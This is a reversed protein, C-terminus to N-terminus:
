ANRKIKELYRQSNMKYTVWELNEVRNDQKNGNIHDICPYGNPNPIFAEAVIRHVYKHDNGALCLYRSGTCGGSLSPKVYEIDGNHYVKRINGMENVQWKKISKTGKGRTSTGSTKFTRWEM